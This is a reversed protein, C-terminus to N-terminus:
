QKRKLPLLVAAIKQQVGLLEYVIANLNEMALADTEIARDLRSIQPIRVDPSVGERLQECVFQAEIMTPRLESAYQQQWSLRQSLYDPDLKGKPTKRRAVSDAARWQELRIHLDEVIQSLRVMYIHLIQRKLANTQQQQQDNLGALQLSSRRTTVLLDHTNTVEQNMTVVLQRIGGLEDNVKGILTNTNGVEQQVNALLQTTNKDAVRREKVDFYFGALGLSTFLILITWRCWPRSEIWKTIAEWSLAIGAMILIANCLAPLVYPAWSSLSTWIHVPRLMVPCM